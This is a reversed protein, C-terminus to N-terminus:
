IGYIPNDPGHLHLSGALSAILLITYCGIVLGFAAMFHEIADVEFQTVPGWLTAGM